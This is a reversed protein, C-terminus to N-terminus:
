EIFFGHGFDFSHTKIEEVVESEDINFWEGRERNKLFLKHINQEIEYANKCKPTCFVMQLDCGSQNSLTNMRSEPDKAVGIKILGTQENKIVYVAQDSEKQYILQKSLQLKLYSDMEEFQEIFLMRYKNAKDGTYNLVVYNFLPRNVRYCNQLRGQKDTYVDAEFIFNTKTPQRYNETIKRIEDIADKFNRIVDYHDKKFIEAINLTTTFLEGGIQLINSNNYCIPINAFLGTKRISPLVEEVVWDQFKEADPLNSRMILRYVDYESIILINIPPSKPTDGQQSIKNVKKCHRRIADATDIYGLAEAVDKGVFWPNGDNDVVTRIDKGEYSFLTIDKM